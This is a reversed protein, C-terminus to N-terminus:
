NPSPHTREAGNDRGQRTEASTDVRGGGTSNENRSLQSKTAVQDSGRRCWIAVRTAANDRSTHAKNRCRRPMTAVQIAITIALAVDVNEKGDQM